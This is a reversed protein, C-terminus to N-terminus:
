NNFGAEWQRADPLGMFRRFDERRGQESDHHALLRGRLLASREALLDQRRRERKAAFRSYEGPQNMRCNCEEEALWLRYGEPWPEHPIEAAGKEPQPWDGEIARRLLGARNRAPNRLPLWEIQRRIVEARYKAAIRAAGGADFGEKRLLDAHQKQKENLQKTEITDKETRDAPKREPAPSTDKKTHDPSGSTDKEAHNIGLDAPIREPATPIEAHFGDSWRVAYTASRRESVRASFYCPDLRVIYNRAVSARIAQALTRRSSLGAVKMIQSYALTAQQRRSGRRAQYGISYRIVAGVVKIVSLNESPILRDFFENPIDTRHGEGEYFGRFEELTRAYSPRPDWKLAYLAPEGSDGASSARGERICEVFHKAIAEDLAGRIVAHSIGARRELERHSVEIRERQPNGLADCWGLTRRILYAVVRLCGQSAHPLCVDFFQNPTYTTNSTPPQFGAFTASAAATAGAYPSAISNDRNEYLM